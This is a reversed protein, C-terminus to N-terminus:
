MMREADFVHDGYVVEDANVALATCLVSTLVFIFLVSLTLKRKM